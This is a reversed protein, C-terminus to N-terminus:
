SRTWKCRKATNSNGCASVKSRRKRAFSLAAAFGYRPREFGLNADRQSGDRRASGRANQGTALRRQFEDLLHFVVAAAQGLEIQGGATDDFCQLRVVAQESGHQALQKGVFVRIELPHALLQMEADDQRQVVGIVLHALGFCLSEILQEPYLQFRAIQVLQQAAEQIRQHVHAMSVGAM